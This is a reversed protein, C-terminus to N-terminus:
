IWTSLRLSDCRLEVALRAAGFQDKYQGFEGYFTTAGLAGLGVGNVAGWTKGGSRSSTGADNTDPIDKRIFDGDHVLLGGLGSRRLFVGGDIEEHQWMGYIGLGSPKHM